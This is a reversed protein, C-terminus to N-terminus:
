RGSLPSRREIGNPPGGAPAAAGALNGGRFSRRLLEQRAADAFSPTPTETASPPWAAAVEPKQEDAREGDQGRGGTTAGRWREIVSMILDRQMPASADARTNGAADSHPRMAVPLERFRMRTPIGVGYGFTFVERTGLSPIFSLMDDSADSVASRIFAQDRDNSLRMVFLTSCQSIITPDIESPRQTVLGLYVGYKRGERAIRSLARRTPGFGAEPDAPAYRHAEECVFLMPMAGDSWLGFDFAMRSLVSVVSDIVEAPFGALQMIAVPKGDPPLRFLQSLLEPMVDGGLNANDFMFSYRPHSRLAQIRAILKHYVARTSRNELKGMREDLLVLLDEIRYPVPTDATFGSNKPDRRKVAGQRDNARYQLYLTKALPIIDSLIEREEDTAARGGLFAEVTEEFNFLWFPLRVNAPSFVVAKDGFCTAFENHADILFIRLNPRTAIIQQLVVVVGSSKGVGTTGLVAFHRSVLDDINIHVGIKPNQQLDGIHARDNNVAGYVVRLEQETMLIASDGIKPYNDIGRKFQVSNGAGAGIEGLLELRAIGQRSRGADLGSVLTENIESVVGIILTSDTMLGLFRGVTAYDTHQAGQADKAAQLAVTAKAGSIATVRGVAERVRPASAPASIKAQENSAIMTVKSDPSFKLGNLVRASPPM